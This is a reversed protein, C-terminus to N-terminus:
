RLIPFEAKLEELVTGIQNVFPDAPGPMMRKSGMVHYSHLYNVLLPLLEATKQAVETYRRADQLLVKDSEVIPNKLLWGLLDLVGSPLENDM